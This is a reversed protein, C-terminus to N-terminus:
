KMVTELKSRYKGGGLRQPTGWHGVTYDFWEGSTSITRYIPTYHSNYGNSNEEFSMFEFRSFNKIIEVDRQEFDAVQKSQRLEGKKNLLIKQLWEVGFQSQEDTIAYGHNDTKDALLSRIANVEIKREPSSFRYSNLLKGLALIDGKAMVTQELRALQLKKNAKTLQKYM